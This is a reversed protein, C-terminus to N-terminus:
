PTSASWASADGSEFGDAFLPVSWPTESFIALAFEEGSGSGAVQRREVHLEYDGPALDELHLHEVTDVLSRSAAVEVGDRVLALDLDDQGDNPDLYFGDGQDIVGNSNVDDWFTHRDFVLTATLSASAGQPRGLAYVVRGGVGEIEGNVTALDYAPIGGSQTWSGASYIAHARVTDIVGAGQEDDLPTTLGNAWPTGDADLAKNASTMLVARLVKQDLSEGNAKGYDILQAAAGTVHPAAASTGGGGLIAPFGFRWGQWAQPVFASDNGLLDPKSRGDLTPGHDHESWARMLDNEMGGVTLVNRSSGPATPKDYDVLQNVAPVCLINEGYALYDVLLNTIEAEGNQSDIASGQWFSWSMNIVDVENAVLFGAADVVNMVQLGPVSARNLFEATVYRADPAYGTMDGANLGRALAAGMVRTAHQQNVPSGGIGDANQSAAVLRPRGLSDNGSYWPHLYDFADDMTGVIVDTGDGLLQRGAKVNTLLWEPAETGGVTLEVTMSNDSEDVEAVADDPDLVVTIEYTGGEFMLWSGWNHIWLGSASGCGWNIEASQHTWGNVTREISYQDCTPDEYLFRVQVFFAEGAQPVIPNSAGDIVIVDVVSLNTGGRSAVPSPVFDGHSRSEPVSAGAPVVLLALQVLVALAPGALGGRGPTDHRRGPVASRNKM